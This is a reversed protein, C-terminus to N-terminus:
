IQCRLGPDRQVVLVVSDVDSRQVPPPPPVLIEEEVHQPEQENLDPAAIPGDVHDNVSDADRRRKGFYSHMNHMAAAKRKNKAM